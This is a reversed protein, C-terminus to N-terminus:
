GRAELLGLVEQDLLGLVGLVGGRQVPAGPLGLVLGVPRRVALGVFLVFWVGSLSASYRALRSKPPVDSGAPPPRPVGPPRKTTCSCLAVRRCQSRRRSCSPTATEHATGLPM